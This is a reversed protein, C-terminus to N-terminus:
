SPLELRWEPCVILEDSQYSYAIPPDGSLAASRAWLGTIMLHLDHNTIPGFDSRGVHIRQQNPDIAIKKM